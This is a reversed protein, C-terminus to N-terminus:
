SLMNVGLIFILGVAMLSMIRFGQSAVILYIGIGPSFIGMYYPMQHRLARVPAAIINGLLLALVTQFIDMTGRDLMAGAAAYGSKSEAVLSFIVVTVAEIPIFTTNISQAMSRRLWLFFGMDSILIIVLYVPLIILLINILRSRFKKSTEQLLQKLSKDQSAKKNYDVPSQSLMFHTYTLVSGLRFLAAAFTLLIYILGAKGLLPLLIFFTTPLHLFFSPFTNLLVALIMENRSISGEKHFSMLMALSTVGSFFATTFVAGMQPSLHGWRMFPRAMVALRDTWGFNEVIQGVFLGISIFGTLRIMPWILSKWLIVPNKFLEVTDLVGSLLAMLAFGTITALFFYLVVPPKREM